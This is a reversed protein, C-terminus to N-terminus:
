DPRDPLELNEDMSGPRYGELDLCAHRYGAARLECAVQERLRPELLSELERRDIELRALEGHDRVRFSRLGLAALREEANDIREIRARTLTQGYPVRTALCATAPADWVSLGRARAMARIAEKGIGLEIFPSRAELERAARLGPRHDQLDDRNSGELLTDLGEERALDRLREFRARKCRYCRDVPNERLVPDLLEDLEVVRHRAGIRAAVDRARELERVPHLPSAVTIGLAREGLADHAAALLLASDVGGSFAVLVGSCVRLHEVLGPYDNAM